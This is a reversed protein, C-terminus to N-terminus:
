NNKSSKDSELPVMNKMLEEDGDELSSDVSDVLVATRSHHVIIRLAEM